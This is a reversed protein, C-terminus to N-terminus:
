GLNIVNAMKLFDENFYDLNTTSIFVQTKKGIYALLKDRRSIDLESMVDDLLLISKKNLMEELLVLEALKWALVISRQQGQSAFDSANKNDLEFVIKDKHAGYLSRASLLETQLNSEVVSAVKDRAQDRSLSDIQCNENWSAFYRISLLEKSSSIENYLDQVIPSIKKLLSFRFYSLQASTIVFVENLSKLVNKNSNEKLLKNKQKLVKAFDRSVTYFEKSIQGGLTDLMQRRLSNSKKVLQLDDPTFIVSPFKGKCQTISRNKGNLRYQKKEDKITLSLSSEGNNKEGFNEIFTTSVCACDTQSKHNILDKIFSHRFSLNQTMLQIAEILNSKGVANPGVFINVNDFKEIEFNKYNRFNCLKINRLIFSKSM